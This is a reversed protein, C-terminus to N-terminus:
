LLRNKYYFIYENLYKIKSKKLKKLILIEENSIEKSLAIIGLDNLLNKDRVMRMANLGNKITDRNNILIENYVFKNYIHVPLDIKPLVIDWEINDNVCETLFELDSKVDELLFKEAAFKLNFYTEFPNRSNEYNEVFLIKGYEYSYPLGFKFLIKDRLQCYKDFISMCKEPGGSVDIQLQLSHLKVIKNIISEKKM